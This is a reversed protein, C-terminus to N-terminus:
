LATELVSFLEEPVLPKALAADAGLDRVRQRGADDISGSLVIVPIQATKTSMELKRLTILVAASGNGSLGLGIALRGIPGAGAIQWNYVRAAVIGPLAVTRFRPIPDKATQTSETKWRKGRSSRSLWAM